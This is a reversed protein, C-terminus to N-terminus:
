SFSHSHEKKKGFFLSLMRVFDLSPKSTLGATDHLFLFHFLVLRSFPGFLMNVWVGERHGFCYQWSYYYPVSSAKTPVCTSSAILRLNINRRRWWMVYLTLLFYSLFSPSFSFCLVTEQQRSQKPPTYFPRCLCFCFCQLFHWSCLGSSKIRAVSSREDLKANM